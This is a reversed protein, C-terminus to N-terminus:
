GLGEGLRMEVYHKSTDGLSSSHQSLPLRMVIKTNYM